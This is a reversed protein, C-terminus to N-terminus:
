KVCFAIETKETCHDIFRLSYETESVFTNIQSYYVTGSDFMVSFARDRFFNIKPSDLNEFITRVKKKIEKQHASILEEM